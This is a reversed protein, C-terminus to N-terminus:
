IIKQSSNNEIALYSSTNVDYFGVQTINIEDVNNTINLDITLGFLINQLFFLIILLRKM